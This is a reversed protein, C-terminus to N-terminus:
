KRPPAPRDFQLLRQRGDANLAARDALRELFPRRESEPLDKAANWAAERFARGVREAATRLSEQAANNERNKRLKERHAHQMAPDPSGYLSNRTETKPVYDPVIGSGIRRLVDALLGALEAPSEDGFWEVAELALFMRTREANGFRNLQTSVPLEALQRLLLRAVEPDSARAHINTVAVYYDVFSTEWLRGAEDFVDRLLSPAWADDEATEDAEGRLFGFDLELHSFQNTDAELVSEALVARVLGSGPFGDTCFPLWKREPSVDSDLLFVLWKWDEAARAFCLWEENRWEPVSRAFETRNTEPWAAVIAKLAFYDLDGNTRETRARRASEAAREIAGDRLKWGASEARRLFECRLDAETRRKEDVAIGFAWAVKLRQEPSDEEAGADAAARGSLRGPHEPKADLRFLPRLRPFAGSPGIRNELKDLHRSADFVVFTRRGPLTWLFSGSPWGMRACDGLFSKLSADFDSSDSFPDSSGTFAPFVEKSWSDDDSVSEVPEDQPSMLADLGAYLAFSWGAHRPDDRHFLAVGDGSVSYDLELTESFAELVSELPCAVTRITAGPSDPDVRPGYSDGDPELAIRVGKKAPDSEDLDWEAALENLKAVLDALSEGERDFALSPVIITRLKRLVAAEGGRAPTSGEVPAVGRAAALPALALLPIFFALRKM